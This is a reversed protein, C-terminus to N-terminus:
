AREIPFALVEDITNSQCAIMLLRDLGLAVGACPPLGAHLAALLYEDMPLTELGLAIRQANDQTFRRRQEAADCLELFGNALEMGRLILEFRQARAPPGPDIVALAAQDPPFNAIFVPRDGGLGPVVVAGYLLDQWVAAEPIDQTWGLAHLAPLVVEPGADLGIGCADVLAQEYDVVVARPLDLEPLLAHLLEDVEGMLDQLSFGPRYWELMTFEPHHLRGREGDRFVRTVQYMPGLGAALLRKMPFEPSTALFCDRERWRSKLSHIAPDTVAHHSLLPTEVELM